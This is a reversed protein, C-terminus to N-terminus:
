GTGFFPGAMSHLFAFDYSIWRGSFEVSDLGVTWDRSNDREPPSSAQCGFVNSAANPRSVLCLQIFSALRVGALAGQGARVVGSSGVRDDHLYWQDAVGTDTHGPAICALHAQFLSTIVISFRTPPDNDPRPPLGAQLDLLLLSCRRAQCDLMNAGSITGPDKAPNWCARRRVGSAHTSICNADQQSFWPFLSYQEHRSTM